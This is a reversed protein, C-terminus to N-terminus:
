GREPDELTKWALQSTSMAVEVSTDPLRARLASAHAVLRELDAIAAGPGALAAATAPTAHVVSTPRLFAQVNLPGAFRASAGTPLVHNPGAIYDGLATPTHAGCFIAGAVFGAPDPLPDLMLQLHEPAMQNCLDRLAAVDPAHILAGHNEWAPATCAVRTSSRSWAAMRAAVAQLVGLDTGAVICRALPDHEAQALLDLAIWDPDASADCLILVESPGAIADIGVRGYVERKAAAVWANGPGTIVDVAAITATGFAAAAIAQAGAIRWVETIGLQQLASAVAPNHEITGPVTFVALRPVGAVQAPVANMIVSSPYAARGGPVYLGASAVPRWMLGASGGGPLSVSYDDRRQPAHFARVNEIATGIAAVLDAPARAASQAIEDATVRFRDPALTVGDFRQTLATLAADGDARVAALIERAQAVVLAPLGDEVAELRARLAPVARDRPWEYIPLLGDSM